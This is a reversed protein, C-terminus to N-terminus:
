RSSYWCDPITRHAILRAFTANEIAPAHHSPPRRRSITVRNGSSNKRVATGHGARIAWGSWCFRMIPTAWTSWSISSQSSTGTVVRPATSSNVFPVTPMTSAHLPMRERCDPNITLRATPSNIHNRRMWRPIRTPEAMRSAMKLLRTRVKVRHQITSFLPDSAMCALCSMTPLMAMYERYPRIKRIPMHNARPCAPIQGRDSAPEHDSRIACSLQSCTGSKRGRNAMVSPINRVTCPQYLTSSNWAFGCFDGANVAMRSGLLPLSFFSNAPSTQDWSPAVSPSEIRRRSLAAGNPKTLLECRNQFGEAM